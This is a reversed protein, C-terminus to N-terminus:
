PGWCRTLVCRSFGPVFLAALYSAVFIGALLFPLRRAWRHYQGEYEPLRTNYAPVVVTAFAVSLYLFAILLTLLLAAKLAEM